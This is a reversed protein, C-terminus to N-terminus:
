SLMWCPVFVIRSKNLLIEKHYYDKTLVMAMEPNYDNIFSHMGSPVQPRNMNQYKTEIPIPHERGIIFDVENQSQTRWFFLDDASSLNKILQSYISNEVLQGKDPRQELKSFIGLATNRLGTDDFFIKPMKVIEKRRNTYFPPVLKIIFSM